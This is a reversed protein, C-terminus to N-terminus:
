EKEKIFIDNKTNMSFDTFILIMSVILFKLREMYELDQIFGFLEKMKMFHITLARM